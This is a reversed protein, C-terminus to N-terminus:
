EHHAGTWAVICGIAILVVIELILLGRVDAMYVTYDNGDVLVTTETNSAEVAENELDELTESTELLDTENGSVDNDSRM